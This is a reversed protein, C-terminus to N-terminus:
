HRLFPVGQIGRRHAQEEAARIEAVGGGSSLLIEAKSRDLGAESVVNLLTPGDTIDQGETFYARFLAEVM